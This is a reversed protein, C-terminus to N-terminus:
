GDKDRSAATLLHFFGLKDLDGTRESRRAFSKAFEHSLIKAALSAPFSFQGMVGLYVM